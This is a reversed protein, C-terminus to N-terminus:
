HGVQVSAEDLAGQYWDSGPRAGIVVPATNTIAGIDAPQSYATGDVTVEIQTDTKVCQVTHWQGDNIKPGAILDAYGDTGEFGCSAQGSQQLEMKFEAGSKVYLGKRVVDWDAPPSPPTGTTQLHIAITVDAAGPNLAGGSPVSVYSSSGNFGFALGALGPLGLQVHSLTGNHGGISDFMTTGSTENMQWLAVVSSQTVSPQVVGTDAVASASGGVNVATVRLQLTSGVDAAAPVYSAGTAVSTCSGGVAGCRMWEFGYSIPETGTWSGPNANLVQGAQAIGSIAPAVINVPVASAPQVLATIGSNAHSRGAPNVATVAVRLRHGVDAGTPTYAGGTAGAIPRCRSGGPSCRLWREAYNIPAGGTWRGAGATLTAGAQLAGSVTPPSTQIPPAPRTAGASAVDIADAALSFPQGAVADGLQLISVGDHRVRARSSRYVRRRNLRVEITSRAGHVAVQLAITAWRRVGLRAPTSLSRRGFAVEIAGDARRYVAALQRWRPDLLRLLPVDGRGQRLVYFDGRATLNMYQAAFAKRAYVVSGGHASESLEAAVSGAGVIRSQLVAKADGGVQVQSWGSFSQAEFGDRFITVARSHARGHVAFASASLAGALSGVILAAILISLYRRRGASRRM